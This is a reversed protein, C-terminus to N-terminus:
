WSHRDLIRVGQGPYSLNVVFRLPVNAPLGMEVIPARELTEFILRCNNVRMVFETPHGETFLKSDEANCHWVQNGKDGDFVYDDVYVSSYLGYSCASRIYAGCIGGCLAQKSSWDLDKMAAEQEVGIYIESFGYERDASPLVELHVCHHRAPELVDSLCAARYDCCFDSSESDISARYDSCYYIHAGHESVSMDPHARNSCFMLRDPFSPLLLIVFRNDAVGSLKANDDLVRRGLVIVQGSIPHGLKEMIADKLNLVSDESRLAFVEEQGTLKKVVVQLPQNATETHVGGQSLM